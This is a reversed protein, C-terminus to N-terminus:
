CAGSTLTSMGSCSEDALGVIEGIHLSLTLQSVTRRDGGPHRYV